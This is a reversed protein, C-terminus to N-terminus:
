EHNGRLEYLLISTAVAVNLSECLSNMKIYINKDTLKLLEKNVGHGENGMILAYKNTKINRVDVGHNVNTGLILYNDKKLKLIIDYLNAYVINMHFFMGETSRLVKDNYIDVSNNSLIITDVDFAKSSRIITGLNGPDSIDDLLLIKNGKIENNEIIKCVGIVKGYNTLSSLKNLINSTVYTIERDYNFSLTTDNEILIDILIGKKYAEECLHMGEVLFLGEKKRGKSNKLSYYRKIKKNDLSTIIM